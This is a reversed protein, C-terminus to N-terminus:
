KINIHKNIMKLPKFSEGGGEYFKGFYEVYQLRCSHVYAGLLGLLLNFIHLLMLMLPILILFAGKSPIYSIILNMAGGISGGAVGIAMLRTYSILDGVYGTIGYLAYVGNGFKGGISKADGGNTCVIGIMGAAMIWLGCPVKLVAATIGAFTILWLGVEAFATFYKKMRILTTAKILLGILIQLIGFGISMYMVKFTDNSLDLISKFTIADGFGAGYILGWATTSLGLYSFLKAFKRKDEELNLFKLALLSAITVVLGYGFDAVMMGFFVMYFPALWPTPDVGKYNPLSYMETISEFAGVFNNNKLKVPVELDEEESVEEFSLVFNDGTAIKITEELENNLEFPVWGSLVITNKSGVFNKSSEIREKYNAYYEECKELLGLSNDLQLNNSINDFEKRLVDVKETLSTIESKIDDCANIKVETYDFRKLVAEAESIQSKHAVVVIYLENNVRNVSYLNCLGLTAFEDELEKTIMDNAVRVVGTYAKTEKLDLLTSVSVDLSSWPSLASIDGNIKNIETNIENLRTEKSKLEQCIDNWNSSKVINKLEGYELIEKGEKMAKFGSPKVSYKDLFSLSSRITALCSDVYKIEDDVNESSMCNLPNESDNTQAQLNIFQSNGFKQLNKLVSKKDKRFCVLTFKNMKTIAM